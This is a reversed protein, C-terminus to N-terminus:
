QRRGPLLMAGLTALMFTVVFTFELDSLFPWLPNGDGQRPRIVVFSTGEVPLKGVETVDFGLLTFLTCYVPSSCIATRGDPTHTSLAAGDVMVSIRDAPRGGPPKSFTMGPAAPIVTIGRARSGWADLAPPVLVTWVLALPICSLALGAFNRALYGGVNGFLRRYLSLFNGVEDAQAMERAIPILDSMVRVTAGRPVCVRWLAVFAAGLILGLLISGSYFALAM